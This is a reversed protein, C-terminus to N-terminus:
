FLIRSQSETKAKNKTKKACTTGGVKRYAFLQSKIFIDLEERAMELCCDRTEIVSDFDVVTSCPQGNYLDQCGCTDNRFKAHKIYEANDTYTPNVDVDVFSDDSDSEFNIEEDSSHSELSEDNNNVFFLQDVESLEEIFLDDNNDLLEDPITSCQSFQSM